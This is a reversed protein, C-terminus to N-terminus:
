ARDFIFGCATCRWVKKKMILLFGIILVPLCCFFAIVMVIGSGVVAAGPAVVGAARQAEFDAVVDKVQDHVAAPLTDLQHRAAFDNTKFLAVFDAPVGDIAQLKVVANSQSESTLSNTVNTTVAVSIVVAGTTIILALLSPILLCFGLVVVAPSMRRVKTPYMQNRCKECVMGQQQVPPIAPPISM